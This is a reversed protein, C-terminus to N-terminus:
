LENKPIKEEQESDLDITGMETNEIFTLYIQLSNYTGLRCLMSKRLLRVVLINLNGM